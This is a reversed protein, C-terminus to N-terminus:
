IKGASSKKSPRPPNTPLYGEGYDGFSKDTFSDTLSLLSPTEPEKEQSELQRIREELRGNERILIKNEEDKEKYMKYIISEETSLVSNANPSNELKSEKSTISDRLMSGRGLVLWEINVETYYALFRSLNEESLGNNQGLVGRTIGTKAYCDYMSIGNEGLYQLIRQKIPSKDQKNEQM